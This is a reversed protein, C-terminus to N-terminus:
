VRRIPGTPRFRHFTFCEQAPARDITFLVIPSLNRTTHSPLRHDFSSLKLHFIFYPFPTSLTISSTITGARWAAEADNLSPHRIHTLKKIRTCLGLIIPVDGDITCPVCSVDPPAATGLRVRSSICIRTQASCTRSPHGDNALLRFPARM